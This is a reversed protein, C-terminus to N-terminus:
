IVRGEIEVEILRGRRRSELTEFNIQDIGEINRLRDIYDLIPNMSANTVVLQFRNNSVSFSVWKSPAECAEAMAVLRNIIPRDAQTFQRQIKLYEVHEMTRQQLAELKSITEQEQNLFAEIQLTEKRFQHIQYAYFVWCVVALVVAVIVSRLLWKRLNVLMTYQQNVPGVHFFWPSKVCEQLFALGEMERDAENLPDDSDV